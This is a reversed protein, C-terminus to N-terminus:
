ADSQDSGCIRKAGPRGSAPGGTPRGSGPDAALAPIAARVTPASPTTNPSIPVLGSYAMCVMEVASWWATRAMRPSTKPTIESTNQDIVIITETLYTVNMMRASLPPSPPMM